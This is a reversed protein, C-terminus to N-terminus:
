LSASWACAICMCCLLISASCVVWVVVVNDRETPYSNVSMCQFPSDLPRPNPHTRNEFTFNTKGCEGQQRSHFNLAHATYKASFTSHSLGTHVSSGQGFLQTPWPLANNYGSIKLILSSTLRNYGRTRYPIVWDLYGSVCDALDVGLCRKIQRLRWACGEIM